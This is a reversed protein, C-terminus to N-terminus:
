EWGSILASVTEDGVCEEINLFCYLVGCDKQGFYNYLSGAACVYLRTFIAPLQFHLHMQLPYSIHPSTKM